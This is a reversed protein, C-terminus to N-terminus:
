VCLSNINYNKKTISALVLETKFFEVIFSENM